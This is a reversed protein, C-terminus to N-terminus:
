IIIIVKMLIKNCEENFGNCQKEFYTIQCQNLLSPCKKETIESILEGM